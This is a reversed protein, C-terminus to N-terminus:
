TKAVAIIGNKSLIQFKIKGWRLLGEEEGVEYYYVGEKWDECDAAMDLDRENLSYQKM